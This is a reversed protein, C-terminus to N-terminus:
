SGDSSPKGRTKLERIKETHLHTLDALLDRLEHDQQVWRQVTPELHKPIHIQETRGEHRVTLALGRHGDGDACHCNPKGCRRKRVVLSGHLVGASALLQAARNRLRREQAPITGRNIERKM